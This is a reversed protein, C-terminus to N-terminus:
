GETIKPVKYCGAEAEPALALVAERDLSPQPKDERFPHQLAVGHYTPPVDAVDLRNIREVHELIRNLQEAFTEIEEESLSLRALRAVRQIEDRTVAM